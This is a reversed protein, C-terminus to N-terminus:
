NLSPSNYVELITLNHKSCFYRWTFQLGKKFGILAIGIPSLISVKSQKYDVKDPLVITYTKVRNTDRDKVIVTSNLRVIDPPFSDKDVLVAKRLEKNLNLFSLKNRISMKNLKKLYQKLLHYEEKVVVVEEKAKKM